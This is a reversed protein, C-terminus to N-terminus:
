YINYSLAGTLVLSLAHSHKNFDLLLMISSKIM